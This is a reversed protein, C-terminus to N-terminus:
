LPQPPLSSPSCDSFSMCHYLSLIQIIVNKDYLVKSEKTERHDRLDLPALTVLQVRYVQIVMLARSVKKDLQELPVQQDKSDQPVSWVQNGEKM